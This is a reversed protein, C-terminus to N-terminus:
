RRWSARLWTLEGCSRLCLTTLATLQGLSEPLGTLESCGSLDLTKLAALQTAWGPLAHIFPPLGLSLWTTSQGVWAPLETLVRCESLNLTLLVYSFSSMRM